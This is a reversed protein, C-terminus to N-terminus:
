GVLEYDATTKVKEADNRLKAERYAKQAKKAIEKLEKIEEKRQREESVLQILPVANWDKPAAWNLCLEGIVKWESNPDGRGWMGVMKEGNESISSLVVMKKGDPTFAYVYEVGCEAANQETLLNNDSGVGHGCVPGHPVEIAEPSHDYVLFSGENTRIPCEPRGAEIWLSFEEKYYQAYHMWNPKGCHKCIEKNRDPNPGAPLNFDCNNITSWGSKHDDILYKLMKNIDRKFYGKYLKFLTQGLSIPHGDWHHYSGSFSISEGPKSTLRAICGRTSM